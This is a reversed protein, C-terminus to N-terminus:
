NAEKQERVSLWYGKAYSEQFNRTEDEFVLDGSVTFSISGAHVIELGSPTMIEYTKTIDGM